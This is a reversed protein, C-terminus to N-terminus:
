ALFGKEDLEGRLIKVQGKEGLHSIGYGSLRNRYYYLLNMDETTVVGGSVKIVAADHFLGLHKVGDMVWSTADVKKLNESLYLEGRDALEAVKKRLDEAELIFQDLPMSRQSASLRLFRYLDLDAYRKRLAKFFAFAVLHSSLVTNEKYYRDVLREGLLRTYERDRQPEKKLEGNTTLYKAIDIYTGNPGISRGEEDVFHGFVDLPKGVRVTIASSNAFLNYFFKFFKVPPFPADVDAGMYKFTGQAGLYDEILSSAELTFHYSMTMPVIFIKSNPKNQQLNTIQAELATGLLGLKLSHEVAGDRCRGGGPFFISHVGQELIRTSYHKLLSKYMAHSKQRDVTYVGLNGMLYGLIPNSFLNLGAGYSFPPLGMLWIVSGILISDINSMHTPVIMITGKKSLEKLASVEGLVALNRELSSTQSSSTPIVRRLSAANLLWNFFTPVARTAISYVKPDFHGGVEEAYHRLLELMLQERDAPSGSRFLKRQAKGFIKQDRWQRRCTFWYSPSFLRRQRKLRRREKYVAESLILELNGGKLEEFTAQVVDELIKPRHGNFHTLPGEVIPVDVFKVDPHSKPNSLVKIPSKQVAAQTSKSAM